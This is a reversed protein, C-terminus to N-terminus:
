GRRPSTRATRLRLDSAHARVEMCTARTELTLARLRESWAILVPLPSGDTPWDDLTAVPRGFLRRIQQDIDDM